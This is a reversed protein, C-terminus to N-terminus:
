LRAQQTTAMGAWSLQICTPLQHAGKRDLTLGDPEFVGCGPCRSSSAPRLSRANGCAAAFHSPVANKRNCEFRLEAMYGGTRPAVSRRLLLSRTYSLPLACGQWPQPRPNSDWRGSWNAEYSFGRSLAAKTNKPQKEGDIENANRNSNLWIAGTRPPWAAACTLPHLEPTSCLRALTPTTPEFGM